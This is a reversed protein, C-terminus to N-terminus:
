AERKDDQNPLAQPSNPDSRKTNQDEAPFDFQSSSLFDDDPDANLSAEMNRVQNEIVQDEQERREAKLRLLETRARLFEQRLLTGYRCILDLSRGNNALSTFGLSSHIHPIQAMFQNAIADGAAAERFSAYSFMAMEFTAIRQRRWDVSAMVRVAREELKGVPLFHAYYHSVLALFAKRSEGPLVVTSAFIGHKVANHSSRIKGQPTRPGTSSASNAASARRGEPTIPGRSKAGNARNAAKQRETSVAPNHCAHSPTNPPNQPLGSIEFILYKSKLRSDSERPNEPALTTLLKHGRIFAFSCSYVSIILHSHSPSRTRM